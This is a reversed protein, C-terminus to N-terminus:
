FILMIIYIYIYDVVVTAFDINRVGSKNRYTMINEFDIDKQKLLPLVDILKYIGDEYNLPIFSYFDMSRKNPVIEIDKNYHVATYTRDSGQKEPKYQLLNIYLGDKTQYSHERKFTEGPENGQWNYKRDVVFVTDVLYKTRNKNWSGWILISQNGTDKKLQSIHCYAHVWPTHFIYPDENHV